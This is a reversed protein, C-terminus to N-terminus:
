ENENEELLENLIGEHWRMRRILMTGDPMKKFRVWVPCEVQELWDLHIKDNDDVIGMSECFHVFYSNANTNISVSYLYLWFM